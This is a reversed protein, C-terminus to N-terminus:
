QLSTELEKIVLRLKGSVPNIKPLEDSLVIEVDEITMNKLMTLLQEKAAVFRETKDYDKHILLRLELRHYNKQILQFQLIGDLGAPDTLVLPSIGLIGQDSKFELIDDTRGEVYLYPMVSGCKCPDDYIIIRDTVEYKIFPQLFNSLNTLLVKHSMVGNPVPQNNEDVPELIVWDINVHQHGESCQTTIMSAETCSYTNLIKGNFNAQLERKLAPSCTEGGLVIIDPNIKLNGSKIEPLLLQMSTPYAFFISPKFRNLAAVIKSPPTDVNIAKCRYKNLKTMLVQNKYSNYPASFTPNEITFYKAGKVGLKILDKFTFLRSYYVANMVNWTKKDHLVKCPTGSSGSTLNVICKKDLRKGINDPNDLFENVKSLNLQPDTIWNDFVEMLMAKNTVPLSALSPNDELGSYLERYFPSNERAYTVLNNFREEQLAFLNEKSMKSAKRVLLFEEIFSTSKM